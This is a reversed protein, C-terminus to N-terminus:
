FESFVVFYELTRELPFVQCINDTFGLVFHPLQQTNHLTHIAAAQDIDTFPFFGLINGLKENKVADLGIRIVGPHIGALPTGFLCFPFLSPYAHHHGGIGESHPDVFRIDAKDTM